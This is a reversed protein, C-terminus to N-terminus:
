SLADPTSIHPCVKGSVRMASGEGLEYADVDDGKKRKEAKEVKKDGKGKVEIAVDM